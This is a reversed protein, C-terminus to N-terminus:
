KAFAIAPMTRKRSNVQHGCSITPDYTERNEGKRTILGLRRDKPMSYRPKTINRSKIGKNLSKHTNYSGPGVMRGTGTLLKLPAAGKVDRKYGFTYKIKSKKHM